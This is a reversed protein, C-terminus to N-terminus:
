GALLSKAALAAGVIGANNLFQAQVVEAHLDLMSQFQDFEKSMGGGLIILDPWILRELYCLYANFRDGWKEWSLKERKRAADSARLEAEKDNMVLHGLETNPLLHGDTFLATGLGTGITVILVVGQRNRGVGFTMEALGAADADNIVCVPCESYRAFLEATNTGIWKKHINAATLAVGEKIPAPFGFGIPGHWDFARVLEAVAEAVPIPKSPEPTPIRRRESMLLGKEINVPAGKIGSGGIDIGLIEM